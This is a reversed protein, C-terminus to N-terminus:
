LALRARCHIEALRAVGTYGYKRAVYRQAEFEVARDVDAGDCVLVHGQAAVVRPDFADDFTACLPSKAAAAVRPSFENLFMAWRGMGSVIVADTDRCRFFEAHDFYLCPKQDLRQGRPGYLTLTAIGYLTLPLQELIVDAAEDVCAIWAVRVQDPATTSGRLQANADCVVSSLTNTRALPRVELDGGGRRGAAGGKEKVEIVHEIGDRTAVFDARPEAPKKSERIRM